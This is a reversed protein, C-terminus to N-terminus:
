QVGRRHMQAFSGSVPRSSLPWRDTTGEDCRLRSRWTAISRLEGAVEQRASLPAIMSRVVISMTNTTM